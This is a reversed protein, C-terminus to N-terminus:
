KRLIAWGTVTLSLALLFLSWYGLAPIRPDSYSAMGLCASRNDDVVASAVDALKQQIEESVPVGQINPLESASQGTMLQYFVFATLMAGNINSHNGDPAHLDLSPYTRISEEWALGVPAVCAPERASISLHLEHIRPGEEANGKRPWEPFLIPEANRARVRRIWEEAADTPYFYLGSTSYKQAQLVVHTWARSELSQQTVGDDLRESLFGFGPALEASAPSGPLGAEIMTTVLGPLGNASSHSNGIFLLHYTDQSVGAPSHEIPDANVVNIVAGASISSIIVLFIKLFWDGKVDAQMRLYTNRDPNKIEGFM